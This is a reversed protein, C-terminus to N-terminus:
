AFQTYNSFNPGPTSDNKIPRRKAKMTFYPCSRTAINGGLEKPPQYQGPGPACSFSKYFAGKERDEEGMVLRKPEDDVQAFNCDYAGPGPMSSARKGVRRGGLSCAKNKDIAGVTKGM